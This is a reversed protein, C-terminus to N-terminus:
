LLEKMQERDSMNKKSLQTSLSICQKKFMSSIYKELINTIKRSVPNSESGNQVQKNLTKKQSTDTLQISNRSNYSNTTKKCKIKTNSWTPIYSM